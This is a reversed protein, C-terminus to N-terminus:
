KWLSCSEHSLSLSLPQGPSLTAPGRACGDMIGKNYICVKDVSMLQFFIHFIDLKQTSCVVTLLQYCWTFWTPLSPFFSVCCLVIFPKFVSLFMFCSSNNTNMLRCCQIQFCIFSARIGDEPKLPQSQSWRHGQSLRQHPPTYWPETDLGCVESARSWYSVITHKYSKRSTEGRSHPCGM